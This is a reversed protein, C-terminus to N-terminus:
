SHPYLPKVPNTNFAETKWSLGSKFVRHASDTFTGKSYCWAELQTILQAQEENLAQKLQTLTKINARETQAWKLLDSLLSKDQQKLKSLFTKKFATDPKITKTNTTRQTSRRVKLLVVILGLWLLLSAFFAVKWHSRQTPETITQHPVKEPEVVLPEAEQHEDPSSDVAPLVTITQEPLEAINKKGTATNFWALKIAPITLKGTQQPLIAFRKEKTGKLLDGSLSTQSNDKDAYVSAGDIDPLSLDPLSNATLGMASLSLNLNIPTGVTAQLNGPIGSQTLTVKHAPLWMGTWNDPINKVTITTSPSASTVPVVNSAFGSFGGFFNDYSQEVKQGRFIVPPIDLKGAQSPFFAFNQQYVRYTRGNIQASYQQADGLTQLNVDDLKPPDINGSNLDTDYFLKVNLTAQQGVYVTAPTVETTMFLNSQGAQQPNDAPNKVSISIPQTSGSATKLAPITHNGPKQALLRITLRQTSIKKFNQIQINQSSSQGLVSFNPELQSLDPQGLSDGDTATLILSFTEGLSVSTRDVDASVAALATQGLTLLCVLLGYFLLSPFTTRTM